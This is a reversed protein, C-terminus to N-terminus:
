HGPALPPRGHAEGMRRIAAIKNQLPQWNDDQDIAAWLAEVEDILMSQPAPDRWYPHQQTDVSQYREMAGNVPDHADHRGRHRHFFSDPTGGSTRLANECAAVLTTDAKPGRSAVGLRWCWRRGVAAMYLEGFRDLAAILPPADVLLRLAM